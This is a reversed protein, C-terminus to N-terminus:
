HKHRGSRGKRKKRYADDDSDMVENSKVDKDYKEGLQLWDRAKDKKIKKQYIVYGDKTVYSVVPTLVQRRPKMKSRRSNKRYTESSGEGSASDCSSSDTGSSETEVRRHKQRRRKKHGKKKKKQDAKKSYFPMVVMPMKHPTPMPYPMAPAPMPMPMMAPAAQPMGPMPMRMPLGQAMPYPAQMFQASTEHCLYLGLLWQVIFGYM